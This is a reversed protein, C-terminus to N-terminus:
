VKGPERDFNCEMITELAEKSVKQPDLSPKALYFGQVYDIGYGILTELEEKTEVGEALTIINGKRSYDLLIELIDRRGEDSNINRIISMDIKVIDPEVTLLAFENNYGTGFDDLAIMGNWQNKVRSRKRVYYEEVLQDSELIELVINGLVDPYKEQLSDTDEPTLCANSVSNIFLKKGKDIVKEDLLKQFAEFTKEFTLKEVHYLKADVRAIRIVETPTTLIESRPRMLSEYGFIEGTRADVIPQFACDILRNELIRLLEEVGSYLISDKDYTRKNFEAFDGKSTKKVSYMAFDAYKMLCEMDETDDPYWSVGGSARIYYKKGSSLLIYSVSLDSKLQEIIKRLEEKSEFRSFFLKFEDGSMRSVIANYKKFRKIVAAAEKIYEDGTDHGYTDNIYKLNDIDIMVFAACKLKEPENFREFMADTFARRGLLGTLSDHDREYEVKRKENIEVTIDEAVGITRAEEALVTLKLWRIVNGDKDKVDLILNKRSELHHRSMNFLKEFQQETVIVDDGANPIELLRLMSRSIFATNSRMNYDFAGIGVNVAGIIKSLRSASERVDASLEEVSKALEDIERIGTPKIVLNNKPDNESIVSVLNAIPRSIVASIIIVMITGLILSAVGVITLLRRIKNTLSYILNEEAVSIMYLNETEFPTNRNYLVFPQVNGVLKTERNYLPLVAFTNNGYGEKEDVSIFGSTGYFRSFASGFSWYVNYTGAEDSKKAIVYFSRSENEGDIKPLHEELNKKTTGVGFVGYVNGTEDILPVTYKITEIDNKNISFPESWYGLNRLEKYDANELAARKPENYFDSFEDILIRSTWNSDLSIGNEKAIGYEGREMLIDSNDEFQNAADLDRLYLCASKGDDYLGGSELIIFAENVDNSRLTGVLLDFSESLLQSSMEKDSSVLESLSGKRDEACKKAVRDIASSTNDIASWKSIMLNEVINKRTVNKENFSNESNEDSETFVGGFVLFSASVMAMMIVLLAIPVLIKM